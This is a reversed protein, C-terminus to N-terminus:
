CAKADPTLVPNRLCLQPAFCYCKITINKAVKLPLDVTTPLKFPWGCFHQCINAKHIREAFDVWINGGLRTLTGPNYPFKKKFLLAGVCVEFFV